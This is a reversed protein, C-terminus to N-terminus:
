RLLEFLDNSSMFIVDKVKRASLEMELKRATSEKGRNILNINSDISFFHTLKNRLNRIHKWSIKSFVNKNSKYYYNNDTLMFDKIFLKTKNSDM